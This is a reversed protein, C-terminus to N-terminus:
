NFYQPDNRCERTYPLYPLCIYSSVTFYLRQFKTTLSLKPGQDRSANHGCLKKHEFFIAKGLLKDGWITIIYFNPTLPFPGFFIKVEFFYRFYNSVEAMKRLEVTFFRLVHRTSLSKWAWFYCNKRSCYNWVCCEM